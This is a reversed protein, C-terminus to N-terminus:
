LIIGKKIFLYTRLLLPSFYIFDMKTQNISYKNKRIDGFNLHLFEYSRSVYKKVFSKNNSKIAIKMKDIVNIISIAKLEYFYLDFIDKEKFYKIILEIIEFIDFLHNSIESTEGGIRNVSYNVLKDSISSIHKVNALIHFTVAFDQYYLNEPYRIENNKFLSLRYIKDWTCNEIKLLLQPMDELAMGEIRAPIIEKIISNNQDIHRSGFILIDSEDNKINKYATEVCQPEYFDDSDLFMIYESTANDIGTNRAASSGKNSQNILLIREDKIAYYEAIDKSDDTSGDNILIIEIDYLTQNILSKLCRDLYKEVNYIPVVVSVKAM